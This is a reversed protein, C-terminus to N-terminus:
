FQYINAFQDALRKPYSWGHYAVGAQYTNADGPQVLIQVDITTGEPVFIYTEEPGYADSVSGANRPFVTLNAWGEVPNGAFRLVWALLSTTLLTNVSLVLSRLVGVNDAPITFASGAIVAPTNANTFGTGSANVTIERAMPPRIGWPVPVEMSRAPPLPAPPPGASQFSSSSFAAGGPAGSATSRGMGRGPIDSPVRVIRTVPPKTTM